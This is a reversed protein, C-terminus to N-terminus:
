KKKYKIDIETSFDNGFFDLYDNGRTWNILREIEKDTRDHNYPPRVEGCDTFFSQILGPIQIQKNTPLDKNIQETCNKITELLDKLFENQKTLKMQNLADDPFYSYSKSFIIGVHYWFEPVPFMKCYIFLLKKDEFSLRDTNINSVLIISKIGKCHKEKIVKRINEVIEQDKGKSDSLGPTDIMFIDKYHNSVFGDITQTCSGPKSSEKCKKEDYKLIYNCLTSKGEGTKGLVLIKNSM